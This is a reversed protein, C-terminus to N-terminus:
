DATYQLVNKELHRSSVMALDALMDSIAFFVHLVAVIMGLHVVVFLASCSLNFATSLAKM